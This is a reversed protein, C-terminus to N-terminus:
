NAKSIIAVKPVMDIVITAIIVLIPKGCTSWPPILQGIPPPEAEGSLFRASLAFAFIPVFTGVAAVKQLGESIM